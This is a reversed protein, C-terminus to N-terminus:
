ASRARGTATAAAHGLQQLFGAQGVAHEVDHLAVLVRDVRQEVCGSTFATLKTPEVGIACSCRRSRRAAVALAHLRQAAGLVVHHHHGVGVEVLGDVRQDAGGVARGALAAHRDRDATSTPSTASRITGCSASRAFVSFTLFPMSSSASIPGSTVRRPARACRPSCRARADLSPAFSTTSPRPRGLDGPWSLPKKVPPVSNSWTVGSSSSRCPLSRRGPARRAHAHRVEVRRDLQDVGVLEAVADGAERAVAVDRALERAAHLDAHDADVHRDLLIQTSREGISILDDSIGHTCYVNQILNPSSMARSRKM